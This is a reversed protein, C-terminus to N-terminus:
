RTSPTHDGLWDAFADPMELHINHGVGPAIWLSTGSMAGVMAEAIASFKADRAGAAIHVPMPLGSLEDWLSPQVGTGMGRLSGALGAADNALRAARQNARMVEPLDRQSDWLPLSEWYAVFASIGDAIIRAALAEDARRRDARDAESRLGPSASELWLSRVGEAHYRGLYLALRGGMSYGLVHAPGTQALLAALDAAAAEIRYRAPDPPLETLGHGPLDVAICEFRDALRAIIPEWDAGRGSFGHLLLLPEGQGARWLHYRLGNLTITESKM